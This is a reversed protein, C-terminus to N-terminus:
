YIKLETLVGNNFELFYFVGVGSRPVFPGIYKIEGSYNSPYDLITKSTFPQGCKLLIDEISDGLKIGPHITRDPKLVLYDLLTINDKVKYFDNINTDLIEKDTIQRFPVIYATPIEHILESYNVYYGFSEGVFRLPVHTLNNIIKAKTDLVVPTGNLYAINSDVTLKINTTNDSIKITKTAADWEINFGLYNAILRIPVLVRGNDNIACPYDTLYNAGENDNHKEIIVQVPTQAHVNVGFVSLIIGLSVLVVGILKRM